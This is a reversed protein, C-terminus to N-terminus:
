RAYAIKPHKFYKMVRKPLKQLKRLHSIAKSILQGKTREPTGSHVGAKLDCNLYEDPNLEPSYSPLFFVEIEEEHEELWDQVAYSHHVKLNDLILYIKKESDQILRKMFKILTNSNMRDKYVMFRVKGQNTVTSILNVRKCRPHLRIAPTQGRPAYSRGHYSDNCLGTEDGWHIEAQEKKAKKAIVPYQKDLWIKVAKPNQKYARRLPKQPTFGWRKLYEGVTRIPMDISWLQKILQKVAIRTWLAFPLKMQDPCKDYIAKQLEKEQEPSLTRCTGKPRGRKKIRIAKPGQRQYARYLRGIASQHVGTVESIEKYTRGSKKLRIAQNRIQQQADTSLKRADIKDM